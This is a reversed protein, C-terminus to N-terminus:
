TYNRILLENIPKRGKVQSNILRPAMIGTIHYGHYLSRIFPTDSNSLMVRCGKEDLQQFVRALDEQDGPGFPLRTYDTFNSTTSLPHYPPDFYVFDEKKAHDLIKRFDEVVLNVGSLARSATLINERDFIGPNKYRGFPVNFLGQSNVRWLGNYCTKNLYIMRAARQLSSLQNADQARIDYYYNSGGTPLNHIERHQALLIMLEEPNDRVQIYCNILEQNSDGLRAPRPQLFFFVAGGGIFPEFYNKFKGPFLPLYQALLKGKGGAWKLFPSATPQNITDPHINM